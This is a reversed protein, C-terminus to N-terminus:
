SIHFLSQWNVGQRFDNLHASVITHVHYGTREEFGRLYNMSTTKTEPSIENNVSDLTALEIDGTMATGRFVVVTDFPSHKPAKVLWLPEDGLSMLIDAGVKTETPRIFHTGVYAEQLTNWCNIDLHDGHLHSTTVYRLGVGLSHLAESVADVTLGPPVELLLAEGDSHLIWSGVADPDNEPFAGILHWGPLPPIANM